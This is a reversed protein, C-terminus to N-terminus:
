AWDFFWWGLIFSSWCECDFLTPFIEECDRYEESKRSAGLYLPKSNDRDMEM